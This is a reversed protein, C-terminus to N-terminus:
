TRNNEHYPRLFLTIVVAAPHRGPCPTRVGLATESGVVPGGDVKAGPNALAITTAAASGSAAGTGSGTSPGTAGTTNDLRQEHLAEKPEKQQQNRKDRRSM